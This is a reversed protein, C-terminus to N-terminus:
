LLTNLIDELETRILAHQYKLDIPISKKNEKERHFRIREKITYMLQNDRSM